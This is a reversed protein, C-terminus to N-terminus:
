EYRKAICLLVILFALNNLVFLILVDKLDFVIMDHTGYEVREIEV